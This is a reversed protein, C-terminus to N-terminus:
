KSKEKHHFNARWTTKEIVRDLLVLANPLFVVVLFMSLLTGRGLLLGLESVIANSSSLWLCFGALSLTAASVLISGTVETMTKDRAKAASLMKRNAMYHDTLLIAYDVTAGLQVTNMVLYGLYNLPMNTFYPVALNIWIAAEITLTLLLPLSASKFTVALVALIAIIAIMNVMSNDRTVVDRMDSLNVSQGLAHYADSYHRAAIQRIESVVDFSLEGENPMDTYVLIRAYNESYFQSTISQDLYDEPIAAGVMTAYSVVTKVHDLALVQEGVLQEKVVDGKPVMLVVINSRGFVQEIALTDRGTRGSTDIEGLGYTFTNSSQALYAPVLLLAVLLLAPIKLKAIAPGIKKFKPFINKHQTKDIIKYCCLTLAPLFVMVSVFSLVIGKVLNLGLDSGIEFKMFLLALFGFLTTAASAAVSPLSRRLAQKMAENVDPMKTRADSFSHLLFIAYDLSVALQLIPSVSFTVFSVSNLFLNTGMNILVSVGIAALFLVPEFWSSTSVVLILIILPVLIIMAQTTESGALKQISARDAADGSLANQEGILAYIEDTVAVEDGEDITFSFLANGDKYYTEVTAQDVAELPTKLDVADDLWMVGSVGDIEGLQQKFALAQQVSVGRMMVSANPMAGGFEAQMIELAQTSPAEKPLYDVINYNVKVGFFLVICVATVVLFLVTIGKKHRITFDFLKNM